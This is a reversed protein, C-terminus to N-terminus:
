KSKYLKEYRGDENESIPLGNRKWIIEMPTDGNTECVM